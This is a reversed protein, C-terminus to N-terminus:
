RENEFDGENDIYKFETNRALCIGDIFADAEAWTKFCTKDVSYWDDRKTNRDVLAIAKNYTYDSSISLMLLKKNTGDLMVDNLGEIRKALETKNM